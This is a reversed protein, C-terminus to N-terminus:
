PQQGVVVWQDLPGATRQLSLRSVVQLVEAPLENWDSTYDQQDQLSVGRSDSGSMCDMICLKCESFFLTLCLVRNLRTTSAGLKLCESHRMGCNTNQIERNIVGLLLNIMSSGQKVCLDQACNM